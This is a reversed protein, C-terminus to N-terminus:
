VGILSSSMASMSGLGREAKLRREDDLSGENGGIGLEGEYM